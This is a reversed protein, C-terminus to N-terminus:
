KFLTAIGGIATSSGPKNLIGRAVALLFFAWVSIWVSAYPMDETFLSEGIVVESMGWLSGFFLIWILQRSNKM